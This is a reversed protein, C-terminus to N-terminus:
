NLHTARDALQSERYNVVMRDWWFGVHQILPVPEFRLRLLGVSGAMQAPTQSDYTVFLTWSRAGSQRDFDMIERLDLASTELTVYDSRGVRLVVDTLESGWVSLRDEPFDGRLVTAGASPYLIGIVSGAPLWTGSQLRPAATFLGGGSTITTLGAADQELIALRKQTSTIQEQASRARAPDIGRVMAFIAEAIALDSQLAAYEDAISQNTAKALHTGADVPGDAIIDSLVGASRATIQYSDAIDLTLPVAVIVPLKVFFLAMAVLAGTGGWWFIRRLVPSTGNTTKASLTPRDRMVPAMTMVLAGWAAVAAGVGLYRPLLSAAIVIMINIRYAFAAVAYLIMFWEAGIPRAGEKGFSAIWQRTAKLAATARTSLNRQGIFDTMVYYGDLKILPNGNFLISNLTSFVFVNALLTRLYDGEVFHWAIFALLGIAIDTLIGAGSIAIRDSRRATMDAETCDVFPMPYLGIFFLGAKRVRVGARTAVLVHGLEHILKLVPAILGFTILAQLSFVNRFAELIQWDNRVGLAMAVAIMMGLALWFGRGAVSRALPGLRRQYPGVDFIPINAFIPNFPKRVSQEMLRATQIVQLAGFAQKTGDEDLSARAIQRADVDAGLAAATMRRLNLAVEQALVYIKGNSRDQALYVPRDRDVSLRLSIQRLFEPRVLDM